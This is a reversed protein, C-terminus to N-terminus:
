DLTIKDKNLNALINNNWGKKGEFFMYLHGGTNFNDHKDATVRDRGRHNKNSNESYAYM